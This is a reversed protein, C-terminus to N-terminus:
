EAIFMITISGSALAGAGAASVSVSIGNATGASVAIAKESEDGYNKCFVSPGGPDAAGAGLEGVTQGWGDLVAGATGLTPTVACRGSYNGAAEAQDLKSVAPSATGEATAATGGTSATTRRQITITQLAAATAVSSGVCIKQIRLGRAAEADLQMTYAATTVLGLAVCQYTAATSKGRVTLLSKATNVTALDSTAGSKLPIGQALALAPLLSLLSLLRM